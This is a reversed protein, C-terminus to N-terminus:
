SMRLAGDTDTRMRAFALSDVCAEVAFDDHLEATSSAIATAVIIGRRSPRKSHLFNAIDISM